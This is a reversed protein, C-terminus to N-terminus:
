TGTIRSVELLHDRMAEDAKEPDREAIADVIQLHHVVLIDRLDATFIQARLGTWRQEVRVAQILQFVGLFLDNRASEAIKAHFASDWREYDQSNGTTGGREALRKLQEIDSPTARLASLRALAPEIERRVEMIEFPSTRNALSEVRSANPSTPRIFTGQGQRRFVLGQHQLEDLASRVARRTVGFMEMLERETPLRGDKVLEGEGTEAAGRLSAIM